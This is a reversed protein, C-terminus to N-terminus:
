RAAKISPQATKRRRTHSGRVPAAYRRAAVDVNATTAAQRTAHRRPCEPDSQKDTLTGDRLINEGSPVFKLDQIHINRHWRRGRDRLDVIVPYTIRHVEMPGTYRPALQADVAQAKNLVPHHTELGLGDRPLAM